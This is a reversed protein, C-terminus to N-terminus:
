WRKEEVLCTVHGLAANWGNREMALYSQGLGHPM